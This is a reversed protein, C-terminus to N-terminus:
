TSFRQRVVEQAEDLQKLLDAAATARGQHRSVEGPDRCQELSDRSDERMRKLLQALREGDQTGAIRALAKWEQETTQAM